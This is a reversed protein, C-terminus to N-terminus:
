EPWRWCRSCRRRSAASARPRRSTSGSTSRTRAAAAAAPTSRSRRSHGLSIPINSDTSSFSLRPTMGMARVAAAATQVIPSDSRRRAPRGTASRAEVDVTIKGQATSRAANEEDVAQQVLALFTTDLKTSSSRRSRDCTSKWGARSRSRTSRRAAASSASTSRRRRRRRCPSRRLVEAIANGMAFAPSVLGFAGYSHGGPGKFTVRYRKSGVAGNTIDDGAGAGDISIFTKIRDKYKGKLFLYKM